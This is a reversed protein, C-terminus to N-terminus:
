VIRTFCVVALMMYHFRFLHKVPNILDFVSYLFLILVISRVVSKKGLERLEIVHATHSDSIDASATGYGASQILVIEQASLLFKGM